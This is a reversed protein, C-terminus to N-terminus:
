VGGAAVGVPLTIKSGNCNGGPSRTRLLPWAAEVAVPVCHSFMLFMTQIAPPTTIKSAM